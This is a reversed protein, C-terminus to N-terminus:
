ADEEIIKKHLYFHVLLFCLSSQLFLFLLVDLLSFRFSLVVSFIVVVFLLLKFIFRILNAKRVEFSVPYLSLWMLTRHHQWLPMLQILLLFQFVAALSLALWFNQSYFLSLAAVTALRMYIGLYDKSRSFTLRYLYVYTNQQKFALFKTLLYTLLKRKKITTPLVKVDTFLSALRYFKELRQEDNAILLDLPRHEALSLKIIYAFLIAVFLICGVIAVIIGEILTYLLIVQALYRILADGQKLYLNRIRLRYWSLIFNFVKLIIFVSIFTTYDTMSFQSLFLPALMSVAMVSLYSQLIFSYILGRVFYPTLKHEIPLLFIMDPAKLLTQIPNYIIFFTLFVSVVIAVPFNEPLAMLFQQYFVAGAAILFLIAIAMHGNLIYQLYRVSEKLHAKFRQNFLAKSEM